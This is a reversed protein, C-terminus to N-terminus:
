TKPKQWVSVHGPSVATFPTGQFDAWRAKLELGALRAMLDLESPWVYRLPLSFREARGDAVAVHHSTFKQTVVDFEDVGWHADSRDFVLRTEGLPLRQLPPVAVEVLFCGGPHLHQAANRFCAVQADQTVLNTITNFVLYVLSFSDALRTTAIDGKVVPITAGGPKARLRDIMPQSLEIGHVDVGSSALPLAVRGTGIAFELVRGTGALDALCAVAPEVASGSATAPDGDYRAAIKADFYGDSQM